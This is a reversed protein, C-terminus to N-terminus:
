AQLQGKFALIARERRERASLPKSSSANQANTLTKIQNPQSQPKQSLAQALSKQPVEPVVPQLKAAVKKFRAMKLAEELLYEEVEKAADEVSKLTGDAKYTEEILAVVAETAGMEKITEYEPNSDVLKSAESRIQNVAQQYQATTREEQQTVTEKHSNKLAEIEAKLESIAQEHPSPNDLALLAIQDPTVGLSTLTNRLAVKDQTQFQSKPIYSAKYEDEQAKIAAREAQVEKRIQMLKKEQQALAAFKPALAAEEKVEPVPVEPAVPAPASQPETPAPVPAVASTPKAPLPAPATITPM